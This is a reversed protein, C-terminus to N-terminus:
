RKRVEFQDMYFDEVYVTRTLDEGDQPFIPTKTGLVITGGPIFSMREQLVDCFVYGSQLFVLLCWWRYM